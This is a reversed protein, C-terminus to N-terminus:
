RLERRSVLQLGQRQLYRPERDSKAGNLAIETGEAVHYLGVVDIHLHLEAQLLLPLQDLDPRVIVNYLIAILGDLSHNLAEVARVPLVKVTIM